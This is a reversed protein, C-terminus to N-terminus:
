AEVTKSMWGGEPPRPRASMPIAMVAIPMLTYILVATFATGLASLMGFQRIAPIDTLCLSAAGITTTIQAILLPFFSEAAAEECCELRDSPDSNQKRELIHMHATLFQLSYTTSLTMLLTPLIVDIPSMSRGLWGLFGFTWVLAFGMLMLLLSVQSISRFVLVLFVAIVAATLPLLRKMENLTARHLEITQVHNGAFRVPVQRAEIQFTQEFRKVLFDLQGGRVHPWTRVVIAAYRGDESVLNNVFMENSLVARRVKEAEAKTGPLRSSLSSNAMSKGWATYLPEHTLSTVRKTGPLRSVSESIRSVLALHEPTFVDDFELLAVLFRDDGFIRTSERYKKLDPDHAALFLDDSTNVRLKLHQFGIASFHRLDGGFLQWLGIGFFLTVALLGVMVWGSRRHLFQIYSKMM